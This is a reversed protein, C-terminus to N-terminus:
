VDVVAQIMVGNKDEKVLLNHYTIAKIHGHTEYNKVLDGFVEAQLTAGDLKLKADYMLFGKVEILFLLEQLFDVVMDERSNAEVKFKHTLRPKIKTIDTILNIVARGANKLAEEFIKGFAQFQADATHPIYRFQEM